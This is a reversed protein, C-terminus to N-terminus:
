RGGTIRKIDAAHQRARTTLHAVQAILPAVQDDQIIRTLELLMTAPDLHKAMAVRLEAKAQPDGMAEIRSRDVSVDTATEKKTDKNQQVAVVDGAKATDIGLDRKLEAIEIDTLGLPGSHDLKDKERDTKIDDLLGKAAARADPKANPDNAVVTPATERQIRAAERKDFAAKAWAKEQEGYDKTSTADRDQTTTVIKVGAAQIDKAVVDQEAKNEELKKNLDARLKAAEDLQTQATKQLDTTTSFAEIQGDIAAFLQGYKKDIADINANLAQEQSQGGATDYTENQAAEAEVGAQKQLAERQKKLRDIQQAYQPGDAAEKKKLDPLAQRLSIREALEDETLEPVPVNKTGVGTAEAVDPSLETDIMGREKLKRNLFDLRDQAYQSDSQGLSAGTTGTQASQYTKSADGYAADIQAQIAAANDKLQALKTQQATLDRQAKEEDHRARLDDRQKSYKLRVAEAEDGSKGLLEQQEKLNLSSEQQGFKADELRDLAAQLTNAASNQINLEDTFRKAESTLNSFVGPKAIAELTAKFVDNAPSWAAATDAAAGKAEDAVHHGDHAMKTTVREWIEGLMAFGGTVGIILAAEPFFSTLVYQLDAVGQIGRRGGLALDVAGDTARRMVIANKALAESQATTSVAAADASVAEVDTAASLGEMEVRAAKVAADLEAAKIALMARAAVEHSIGMKTAANAVDTESIGMRVLAATVATSVEVLKTGSAAQPARTYRGTITTEINGRPIPKSYKARMIRRPQLQPKYQPVFGEIADFGGDSFTRAIEVGNYTIIM